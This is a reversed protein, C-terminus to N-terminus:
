LFPLFICNVEMLYLYGAASSIVARSVVRMRSKSPVMTSDRGKFAAANWFIKEKVGLCRSSIM